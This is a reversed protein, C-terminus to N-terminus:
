RATFLNEVVSRAVTMRSARDTANDAEQLLARYAAAAEEHDRRLDEIVEARGLNDALRDFVRRRAALQADVADTTALGRNLLEVTDRKLTANAASQPLRAFYRDLEATLTRLVGAQDLSELRADFYGARKGYASVTRTIDAESDANIDEIRFRAGNRFLALDVARGYAEIAQNGSLTLENLTEAQLAARADLLRGLGDLADVLSPGFTRRNRPLNWAASLLTAPPWTEIRWPAREISILDTAYKAPMAWTARHERTVRGLGVGVAAGNAVVPQGCPGSGPTTDLPLLDVDAPTFLPQRTEPHRPASSRVHDAAPTRALRHAPDASAAAYGYVELAANAGPAPAADAALPIFPPRARMGTVRLVALNRAPAIAQVVVQATWHQNTVVRIKSAGAVVHYCTLLRGDASIFFGAGVSSAGDSTDALVMAVADAPEAAHVAAAPTLALCLIVWPSLWGTLGLSAPGGLVTGSLAPRRRATGRLAPGLATGRRAPRGPATASANLYTTWGM